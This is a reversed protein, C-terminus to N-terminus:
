DILSFFRGDIKYYANRLDSYIADKCKEFVYEHLFWPTKMKEAEEFAEKYEPLADYLGNEIIMSIHDGIAKEQSEKSLEDFEYLDIKITITKM